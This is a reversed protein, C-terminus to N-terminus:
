GANHADVFMDKAAAACSSLMITLEEDDAAHTNTSSTSDFDSPCSPLTNAFLQQFRSLWDVKADSWNSASPTTALHQMGGGTAKRDWHFNLCGSHIASMDHWKALM